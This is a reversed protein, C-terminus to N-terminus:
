RLARGKLIAGEGFRKRITDAAQEARARAM